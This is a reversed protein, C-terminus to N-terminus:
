YARRWGDVAPLPNRGATKNITARVHAFAGVTRSGPSAIVGQSGRSRRKSSNIEDISSNIEDISSCQEESHVLLRALARSGAQM